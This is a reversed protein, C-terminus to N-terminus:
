EKNKAILEDISWKYQGIGSLVLAAGTFVFVPYNFPAKINVFFAMSLGFMMTLLAAGLAIQKIKFGTILCIGFIGEAITALIGMAEAVGRSVYPILMNTNDFFHKWDGWAVGPSGPAGFVGFRDIVPIIFGIGLAFRLFLQAIGSANKM